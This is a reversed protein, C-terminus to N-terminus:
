TKSKEKTGYELEFPWHTVGGDMFKVRKFGLGELIKEAEYGRLSYQCFPIYLKDKPLIQAKDRLRGLPMAFAKPHKLRVQQFEAPTRVDLLMFDEGKETLEAVELPSVAQALGTLKNQMVQAANVLLDIAVSYPPAYGLNFQTLDAVTAGLTLAAAAVDLRKAGDGPGVVQVGLLRGSAKDAVMKLGVFLADPLYHAHDLGPVLASVVDFGERRAADESLGTAGATYDFVKAVVTGVMGQYEMHGGTLNTGIVRGQINALQGSSVVVPRKLLRHYNEACDGGAYIDPDSTRLERDVQIAGTAGIKLGAQRALDVNPRVGVAVVALEAPFEGKDTYVRSLNEDADSGFSTVREGLRVKVGKSELNRRLLAGMEFDLLGPFVQDLAEVVTVEVGWEVLAEAMELGIAGAGVVAARKPKLDKLAAMIALGDRPQRIVFVDKVDIGPVRPRVPSAGTALVLKDYPCTEQAGTALDRVEVVKRDRHLALVEKGTLFNINKVSRFYEADRMVGAPSALIHKVTPIEGSILYPLGCASYSIYDGRELITIEAQPDCRRARAAAKPGAAVGGVIVIKLAASM